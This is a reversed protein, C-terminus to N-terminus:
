FEKITIEENTYILIKKAVDYGMENLSQAYDDLQLIHQSSEAGTKYDILVVNKEDLFVLRDPRSIKGNASIIEQENRIKHEPSFYNKLDLHEIISQLTHKLASIQEITLTGNVVFDELTTEIDNKTKIKSLIFHLLNGKEIAKAQATDWLYGSKTVISIPKQKLPHSIFEEAEMFTKEGGTLTVKQQQKGFSYVLQNESWSGSHMLFEIFFGAYTKSNPEGNAKLDKSSIIYLHEVPRTLAVYLLNINDLELQAQHIDFIAEGIEGYTAIEQKYDILSHAFGQHNKPDLPYWVQPKIERYIDLDAFPFIVVPFELGKARHITMVKVAKENESVSVSLTDKKKDFYALFEKISNSQKQTFDLVVDMFFQVFADSSDVLNFCSVLTEVVDYLPQNLLQEAKVNSLADVGLKEMFSELDQVPMLSSIFSHVDQIGQKHALYYLIEAKVIQNQPQVLLTLFNVIFLVKNSSSLLMTDASVVPIGHEILYQSVAIGDKNKRVLVCVDGRNFGLSDCHQIKDLVSNCYHENKDEDKSSDIFELHVFGEHKIEVDQKSHAYLQAYAPSNFHTESLFQFFRNNFSVIEKFSRYNSGLSKVEQEVQFPITTKNYLDIFQEAEGGRWRYISQKADGVLLLSGTQDHQQQELSNSILPKLNEWQLVSTDQFEDIFYHKFKEGLREYIFPTPQNKIEESIITNFESILLKNSELQIAELEKNISNLVSLPTINKYLNKFFNFRQVDQKTEHFVSALQPQIRDITLAESGKIRNPYLPKSEIEQQWKAEFNINFKGEALNLFHKPLYGSNFCSHELDLETFLDLVHQAKSKVLSETKSLSLRLEKKFLEFDEFSKERLAQVYVLNNEKVLLHAIDNLDRSIDWSKDDDLKEIAYDLLTSTLLTDTGTKSILADVAESLLSETDLEVEFTQSLKLDRAFTRIIKHTFGDITSVDFAGYNHLISNLLIESKQQLEHPTLSLEYCLSKFMSGPNAVSSEESFQKLTELIRVKMESVAKNTFTIALIHKFGQPNNMKFLTFLYEKVLTYTKGSGASANYISFPSFNM